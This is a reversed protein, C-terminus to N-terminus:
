KYFVFEESSAATEKGGTGGRKQWSQPRTCSVALLFLAEHRFGFGGACPSGHFNTLLHKHTRISPPLRSRNQWSAVHARISLDSPPDHPPHCSLEAEPGEFWEQTQDSGTGDSHLLFGPDPTTSGKTRSCCTEMTPHPTPSQRGVSGPGQWLIDWSVRVGAWSGHQIEVYPGQFRILERGRPTHCGCPLSGKPAYTDSDICRRWSQISLSLCVRYSCLIVCHGDSTHRSDQM